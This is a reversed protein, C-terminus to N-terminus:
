VIKTNVHLIRWIQGIFNKTNAHLIRWIQGINVCDMWIETVFASASLCGLGECIAHAHIIKRPM